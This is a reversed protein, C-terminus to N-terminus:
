SSRLDRVSSREVLSPAIITRTVAKLGPRFIKDLLMTTMMEGIAASPYDISSLALKGLRAISSNDFGVVSLGDPVAIGAEEAAQVLHLADEDSSCIFATPKRKESAFFRRAAAPAGSAPGHGRFRVIWEEKVRINQRDLFAAAGEMRRTKVLYDEQFFLGIDRHGRRWLHEAAISGGLTDDMAVISFRRDLFNNDYLVIAIGQAELESLLDANSKGEGDYV